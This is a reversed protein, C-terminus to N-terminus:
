LGENQIFLLEPHISIHLVKISILLNEKTEDNRNEDSNIWLMNEM